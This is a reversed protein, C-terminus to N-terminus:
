AMFDHPAAVMAQLAAADPPKTIHYDFGAERSRERDEAQGYGSLATIFVGRHIPESRLQAAVEYGSMGPLGIDLLVIEPRFMRATEVASPGDYVTQVDHGWVKLLTSVAVAADVNDDVVLVRRKAAQKPAGNASGPTAQAPEALPLRITFQSGRGPGESAADVSGGHLEVLRKVLTLGLGMGGESRALTADVQVFLKFIDSLLQPDIGIGEDRVRIVALDGERAISLWIPAPTKSYKAANELLNSLVQTLRVEDADVWIPEDPVTLRLKHGREDVYSRIEEVARDVIRGLPMPSKRLTIKGSVIRSVDLLDDVLRVLQNVQRDM